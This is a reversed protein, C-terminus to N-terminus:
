YADSTYETYDNNLFAYKTETLEVSRKSSRKSSGKSKKSSGKSKKSSGKSKKSSKKKLKQIRKMAKSRKLEEKESDSETEAETDADTDADADATDDSKVSSKNDTKITYLKPNNILNGSTNDFIYNPLKDHFNEQPDYRYLIRKGQERKKKMDLFAQRRSDFAKGLCTIMFERFITNDMVTKNNKKLYDNRVRILEGIVNNVNDADLKNHIYYYHKILHHLLVQQFSAINGTEYRRYPICRQNNSFVTLVVEGNYIFELHRDWFQFYPFYEKLELKYGSETLKNYIKRVDTMYEVSIVEYPLVLKDKNLTMFQVAYTGVHILTEIDTLLKSLDGMINRSKNSLEEYKIKNTGVELPYAEILTMGRPVAKELRRFSTLPDTYMRLYDIYMFRPHIYRIGKITITPMKNYIHAPVYTIDGGDEYNIFIKYTEGHQAQQGKPDVIKKSFLLDCLEKLDQLPEPSYFELDPKDYDDYIAKSPDKEIVLRNLATGGYVIRNKEKIFNEIIKLGENFQTITPEYNDKVIKDAEKKLIDINDGIVDIDHSTYLTIKSTKSM